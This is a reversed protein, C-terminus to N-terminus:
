TRITVDERDPARVADGVPPADEGARRQRPMAREPAPDDVTPSATEDPDPTGARSARQYWAHAAEDDGTEAAITGLAMMAEPRCDAEPIDVAAAFGARAADLEGTSWDLHALEVLAVARRREDQAEGAEGAAVRLWRRRDEARGADRELAALMYAADARDAASGEAVVVALHERRDDPRAEPDVGLWFAARARYSATGDDTAEATARCGDSVVAGFWRRARDPRAGDLAALGAGYATGPTVTAPDLDDLLLLAPGDAGRDLALLGVTRREAPATLLTDLVEGARRPATWGAGNAVLDDAVAVLRPDPAHHTQEGRPERRLLGDRRALLADVAGLLLETPHPRERPDLAQAYGVALHALTPRSLADAVGWRDWDVAARLVAAVRLDGVGTPTVPPVLATRVEDRGPGDVLGLALRGPVDGTRWALGAGRRAEAEGLRGPVEILTVAGLDPAIDPHLLDRRTTALIRVGAPLGAGAGLGGIAALTPWRVDDLWLVVPGGAAVGAATAAAVLAATDDPAVEPRVVAHDGLLLRAARALAHSTGALRPGAVVVVRASGVAAELRVDVDREVHREAVPVHVGLAAPEMAGLRAPRRRRRLRDSWGPRDPVAADPHEPPTVPVATGVTRGSM